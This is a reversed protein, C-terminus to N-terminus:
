FLILFVFLFSILVATSAIPYSGYPYQNSSSIGYEYLSELGKIYLIFEKMEQKLIKM